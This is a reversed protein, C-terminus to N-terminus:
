PAREAKIRQVLIDQDWKLRAKLAEFQPGFYTANRTLLLWQTAGLGPIFAVIGIVPLLWLWAVGGFFGLVAFSFFVVSTLLFPAAILLSSKIWRRRYDPLLQIELAPMAFREFCTPCMLYAGTLITPGNRMGLTLMSAPRCYEIEVAFFGSDHAYPSACSCCVLAGPMKQLSGERCSALVSPAM